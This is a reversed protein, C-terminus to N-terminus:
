LSVGEIIVERGNSNPLYNIIVELRKEPLVGATDKAWEVVTVVDDKGVSDVLENKMIGADDLRYFDYHKLLISKSDVNGEYEKMITFSPSSIEDLINLAKAIGKTLTTKGAGVDGVLEIVEGGTLSTGLKEGLAILETEDKVIM